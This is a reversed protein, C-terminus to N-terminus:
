KAESYKPLRGLGVLRYIKQQHEKFNGFCIADLMEERSMDSKKLTEMIEDSCRDVFKEFREPAWIFDVRTGDSEPKRINFEKPLRGHVIVKLRLGEYRTPLERNDFIMPRSVLIVKTRKESNIESVSKVRMGKEILYKYKIKFRELLDEM